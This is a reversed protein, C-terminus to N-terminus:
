NDSFDYDDFVEVHPEEEQSEVKELHKNIIDVVTEKVNDNIDSAKERISEEIQPIQDKMKPLFLKQLSRYTKVIIPNAVKHVHHFVVKNEKTPISLILYCSIFSFIFALFKLM